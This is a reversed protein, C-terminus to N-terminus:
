NPEGTAKKKIILLTIVIGIGVCVLVILVVIYWPVGADATQNGGDETENDPAETTLETAPETPPETTPEETPPEMWLATATLITDVYISQGPQFQQDNIQWGQFAQGDPAIYDCQPLIYEGFIEVEEMSGTGNGPDFIVKAPIPEWVASVVTNSDSVYVTDGPQLERIDGKRYWCKFRYGEPPTFGCEPLPYNGQFYVTEMNGSGGNADFSICPDDDEVAQVTLMNLNAVISMVMLIAIIVWVTKKNMNSRKETIKISSCSIHM